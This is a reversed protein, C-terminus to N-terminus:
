ARVSKGMRECTYGFIMKNAFMAIAGCTMYIAWQIILKMVEADGEETELIMANCVFGIYSPVVLDGMPALFMFPLGVVILWWQEKLFGCLLAGTKKKAEEECRKAKAEEAKKRMALKAAIMEETIEEEDEELYEDPNFKVAEAIIPNDLTPKKPDENLLLLTNNEDTGRASDHITQEQKTGQADLPALTDEQKDPKPVVKALDSM